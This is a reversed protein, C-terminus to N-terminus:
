DRQSRHFHVHKWAGEQKEWVRTEEFASTVPRGDKLKQVLRVYSVVAVNGMLRVHPRAMTTNVQDGSSSLDFYFKHFELGEVLHGNAEPEFCTLSEDTM